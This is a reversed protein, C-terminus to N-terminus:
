FGYQHFQIHVTDTVNHATQSEPM